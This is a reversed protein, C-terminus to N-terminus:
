QYQRITLNLRGPRRLGTDDPMTDPIIREIGHFRYRDKKSMVMVAGSHLTIREVPDNRSAGGRLFVADMGISISIVPKNVREANDQHLGLRGDRLYWNLYASQAEMPEDAYERVIRLLVEPIPPFAEGTRPHTEVYHYGCRNAIWGYTGLNGSEVRMTTDGPQPVFCALCDGTCNARRAIGRAPMVMRQLPSMALLPRVVEVIERQTMWSLEGAIEFM